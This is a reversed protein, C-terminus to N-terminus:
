LSHVRQYRSRLMPAIFWAAPAGIALSAAVVVPIAGFAHAALAPTMLVVLIGAGFAFASTMMFVLAAIQFRTSM